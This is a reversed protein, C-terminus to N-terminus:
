KGVVFLDVGTAFIGCSKRRIARARWAAKGGFHMEIQRNSLHRDRSEVAKARDTLM